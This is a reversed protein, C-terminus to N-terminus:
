LTDRTDQYEDLIFQAYQRAQRGEGMLTLQLDNIWQFYNTLGWAIDWLIEALASEKGWKSCMDKYEGAAVRAYPETVFDYPRFFTASVLDGDAAKIEKSNKIYVVVRMPFYYESRMWKAFEKCARRVEPDIDHDFRLRLGFRHGERDVDIHNKWKEITWIHM